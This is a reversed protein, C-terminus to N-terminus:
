TSKEHLNEILKILTQEAHMEQDLCNYGLARARDELDMRWKIRKELTNENSRAWFVNSPRSSDIEIGLDTVQHWIPTDPIIVMTNGIRLFAITGDDALHSYRDLQELARDIDEQNETPYGVILLLIVSIDFEQALNLFNDLDDDTFKKGMHFRTRESFSELGVALASCGSNKMAEFDERDRSSRPRVIAQSSWTLNNPRSKALSQTFDRFAKMSGNILSDNFWFHDISYKKQLFLIENTLSEGNKYKFKGWTKNIDCFTCKKVCGRSGEIPAIKKDGVRYRDLFFKDFSPIPVLDFNELSNFRDNNIGLFDDQGMLLKAFADEGEGLIWYDILNQDHLTKYFPLSSNQRTEGIGNSRIGAGGVVIKAQLNSRSRSLFDHTLIVSHSSFVSIAILDFENCIAVLDDFYDNLIKRSSISLDDVFRECYRSLIEEKQPLPLREHLELNCDIFQNELSFSDCISSLIAPALPPAELAIKPFNLILIKQYHM